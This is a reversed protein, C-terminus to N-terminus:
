WDSTSVAFPVRSKGLLQLQVDRSPHDRRGLLLIFYFSVIVAVDSVSGPEVSCTANQSSSVM